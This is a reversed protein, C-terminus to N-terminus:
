GLVINAMALGRAISARKAGDIHSKTPQPGVKVIVEFEYLSLDFSKIPDLTVDKPWSIPEIKPSYLMADQMRIDAM